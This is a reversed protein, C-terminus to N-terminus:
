EQEKRRPLGGAKQLIRKAAALADLCKMIQERAAYLPNEDEPQCNKFEEFSRWFDGEVEEEALADAIRQLLEVALQEVREIDKALEPEPTMMGVMEALEALTVRRTDYTESLWKSNENDLVSPGSASKGLDESCLLDNGFAVHAAIADGDAAEAVAKNIRDQDDKTYSLLDPITGVARRQPRGERFGLEQALNELRARGVGRKEIASEVLGYKKTFGNPEEAFFSIPLELETYFPIKIVRMGLQVAAAMRDRLVPMLPPRASQDPAMVGPSFGPDDTKVRPRLTQKSLFETRDKKKVGEMTAVSECIFGIIRGDKVAQHLVRLQSNREVPSPFAEPEVIGEWVNSDFTVRMVWGLFYTIIDKIM